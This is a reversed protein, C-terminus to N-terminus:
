GPLVHEALIDNVADEATKFKFEFGSNLLRKPVVWRSKLILETETGIVIAGAELLWTPAPLGFPVGSAERIVRMLEANKVANPATCNFIGQLETHDAFWETCAAVDQEHVWSVYQRGNGQKGGMGMKVLNLLRPFVSDSRGLVIGM